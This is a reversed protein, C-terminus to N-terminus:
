AIALFIYTGGDGNLTSTASSTLTFGSSLPDIYNTSTVEGQTDNFILYPDNAGSLIGRASDYVMWDDASDTRKILVFRAGASFGCDINNTTGTGTYSGVKSIGGVTAFLYAIFAKNNDNVQAADGVTFVSSTPTTNSWYGTNTQPANTLNLFIAKTNGLAPTYVTWNYAGNRMKVIMLEPVVGLNHAVTRGSTANGTYTAIDYFGKARRLFYRIYNKDTAAPSINFHGGAYDVTVGNSHDLFFAGANTGEADNSNTLFDGGGSQGRLRDGLSTPSTSRPRYIVTDVNFGTSIFTDAGEGPSQAQLTFLDTAAFESAPKNPRAIAMYVYTNGSGNLGTAASTLHFGTPETRWHSSYSEEGSATQAYLYKHATSDDTNAMGRMADALYWDHSSSASKILLFQPEFGLNIFQGTSGNGTYSGCHIIAEDSDEGFEQEDHAFLYAVYTGGSANVGADSDGLFFQTSTPTTPWFDSDGAANTLNLKLNYTKGSGSVPSGRHYVSWNASSDTKKIIIMGPVSGLNHNITRSTTGDGTYTVIDFFKEQKAFTWSVYDSGSSNWNGATGISYGNNNFATIGSSDTAEADTANSRIYKSLGRTSDVFNHFSINYPAPFGRNKTWVLGGKDSLDVGSVISRATGDGTYLQTSFVDDVYVAGGANGAAAQLLKTGVSM